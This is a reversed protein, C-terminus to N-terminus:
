QVQKGDLWHLKPLIKILFAKFRESSIMNGEIDLQALSLDKFLLYAEWYTALDTCDIALEGGSLDNEESHSLPSSFLYRTTDISHLGIENYSIDLVKLSKILRLPELTTFNGIKNNNLSLCSLLQMGELGTLPLDTYSQEHLLGFILHNM